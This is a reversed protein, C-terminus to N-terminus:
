LKVQLNIVASGNALHYANETFDRTLKTKM